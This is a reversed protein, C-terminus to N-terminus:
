CLAEADGTNEEKDVESEELEEGEGLDREFPDADPFFSLEFISSDACHAGAGEAEGALIAVSLKFIFSVASDAGAGGANGALIADRDCSIDFFLLDFITAAEGPLQM